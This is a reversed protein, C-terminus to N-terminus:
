RTPPAPVAERLVVEFRSGGGERPLCVVTGEYTRAIRRVLYLGLGVGEAATEGQGARRYFPEFIREREAEPVGPGRDDVRIRVGPRAEHLPEVGAEVDGGAGHRQANELLNRLLLRVLRPDVRLPAPAASVAAGTRVAEDRLVAAVDVPEFPPAPAQLDLRGVLLLEEVLADLERIEVLADAMRKGTADDPVLELALRLRALPSRLEHSVMALMRRQAEMLTQLREATQNFRAAVSALEDDGTVDVRVGLDGEGLRRVGAELAELRRTVLRAVPYSALALVLALALVAGLFGAPRPLRRPQLLLVRGDGMAVALAPGAHSPLWVQYRADLRPTPLDVSTFALRRGDRSWVAIDLRRWKALREVAAQLEEQPRDPGPLERAVVRAHAELHPRMHAQFLDSLLLHSALASLVFALVVFLLLTAFIRQFLRRRM